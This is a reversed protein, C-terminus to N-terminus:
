KSTEPRPTPRSLFPWPRGTCSRGSRNPSLKRRVAARQTASWVLPLLAALRPMDWSKLTADPHLATGVDAVHDRLDPSQTSEDLQCEM